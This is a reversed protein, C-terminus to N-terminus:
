SSTKFVLFKKCIFSLTATLISATVIALFIAHPWVHLIVQNTAINCVFLSIDVIIYRGAEPYSSQKRKRKFVWHKNFLYGVGNAIIYSIAKSVSYPLRFHILLFYIGFDLAGIFPTVILYRSIEKKTKMVNRLL